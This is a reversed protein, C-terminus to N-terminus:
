ATCACRSWPSASGLSGTGPEGAGRGESQLLTNLDFAVRRKLMDDVARALKHALVTLAKSKGHKNELRALSKQGTPNNRLFLVAAESCAGKLSADGIKTGSTGYRKGASEKVCTVLRCYSVCAQVRPFRAIDPM